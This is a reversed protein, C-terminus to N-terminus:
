SRSVTYSAGFTRGEGGNGDTDCGALIERVVPVCTGCQPRVGISRYVSSVSRCGEGAVRRVHSDTFGHCLCVYM